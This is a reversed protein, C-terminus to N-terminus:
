GKMIIMASYDITGYRTNCGTGSYKIDIVDEEKINQLAVNLDDELRKREYSEFIKVKM